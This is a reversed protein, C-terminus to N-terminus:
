KVKVHPAIDDREARAVNEPMLWGSGALRPSSGFPGGVGNRVDADARGM